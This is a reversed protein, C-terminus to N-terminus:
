DPYRGTEAKKAALVELEEPSYSLEAGLHAHEKGLRTLWWVRFAIIM